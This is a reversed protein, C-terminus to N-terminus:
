AITWTDNGHLLAALDGEGRQAITTEIQEAMLEDYVPEEVDRLVGVPAVGVEALTLRSLAFALSPQPHHEDHVLLADEGVDAVDVIEV